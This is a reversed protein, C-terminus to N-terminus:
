VEAPLLMGGVPPSPCPIKQLSPCDQLHDEIATRPPDAFVAAPLPERFAMGVRYTREGLLPQTWLVTGLMEKLDGADMSSASASRAGDIPRPKAAYLHVRGDLEDQLPPELTARLDFAVLNSEKGKVSRGQQRVYETMLKLLCPTCLPLPMAERESASFHPSANLGAHLPTTEVKEADPATGNSRRIM